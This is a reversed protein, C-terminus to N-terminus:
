GPRKKSAGSAKISATSLVDFLSSVSSLEKQVLGAAAESISGGLHGIFETALLQDLKRIAEFLSTKEACVPDVFRRFTCAIVDCLSVVVQRPDLHFNVQRTELHRMHTRIRPKVKELEAPEDKGSMQARLMM